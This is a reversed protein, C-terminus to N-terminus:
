TGYLYTLIFYPYTELEKQNRSKFSLGILRVKTKFLMMLLIPPFKDRITGILNWIMYIEEILEQNQAVNNESSLNARTATNNTTPVMTRMIRFLEPKTLIFPKETIPCTTCIEM